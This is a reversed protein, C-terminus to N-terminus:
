PSATYRQDLGRRQYLLLGVLLATGSPFYDFGLKSTGQQYASSLLKKGGIVEPAAFVM